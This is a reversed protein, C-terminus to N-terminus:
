QPSLDARKAGFRRLQNRICYIGARSILEVRNRLRFSCLFESAIRRYKSQSIVKSGLDAIATAGQRACFPALNPYRKHLYFITSLLMEARHPAAAPTGTYLNSGHIRQIALRDSSFVGSELSLAAWKLYTDCSTGSTIKIQEPMPLICALLERRFCLGSTATPVYPFGYGAAMEARYDWEGAQFGPYAPEAGNGNSSLLHFFWGYDESTFARVVQAAKEPLFWDDADLFCIIDGRSAGLGTNLASAQGGNVKLVAVVRNGFSAIVDRSDDTSGDDVVVVETHRYTQALASEIAVGLYRGYNYNNILISVLPEPM